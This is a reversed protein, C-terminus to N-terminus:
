RWTVVLSGECRIGKLRVNDDADDMEEVCSDTKDLGSVSLSMLTMGDDITCRGDELVMGGGGNFDM